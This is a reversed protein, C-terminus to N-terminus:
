DKTISECFAANLAGEAKKIWKKKQSNPVKEWPVLNAQGKINNERLYQAARDIMESTPKM